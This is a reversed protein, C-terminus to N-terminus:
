QSIVDVVNFLLLHISIDVDNFDIQQLEENTFTITLENTNLNLLKGDEKFDNSQYTYFSM